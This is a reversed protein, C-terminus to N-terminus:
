LFGRLEGARLGLDALTAAIQNLREAEMTRPATVFPGSKLM